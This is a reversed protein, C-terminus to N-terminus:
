KYKTTYLPLSLSPRTRSYAIFYSQDPSSDGFSSGWFPVLSEKRFRNLSNCRLLCCQAPIVHLGTFVAFHNKEPPSRWQPMDEEEEEDEEQGRKAGEGGGRALAFLTTVVIM